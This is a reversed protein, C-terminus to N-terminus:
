QEKKTEQTRKKAVKVKAPRIVRDNLMYGKQLEEVVTDEPKDSEVLEVAEHKIPDFKEGVSKIRNLGKETLINMLHKYIMDVGQSLIKHDSSKNASELAREFDDLIAVMEMVVEENVIKFTESKEKAIRKCLNEYDANARLWKENYESALREKEKLQNYEEETLTINKEKKTKHEKM